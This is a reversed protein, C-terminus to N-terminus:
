SIRKLTLTYAVAREQTRAHTRAHMHIRARSRGRVNLSTIWPGDFKIHQALGDRSRKYSDVNESTYLGYALHFLDSTYIRKLFFM